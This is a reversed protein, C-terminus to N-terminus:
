RRLDKIARAVRVVAEVGRKANDIRDRAQDDTMGPGTIALGVPKEFEIALEMGAKAIAHAILEDHSTDGKIIAGIMVVGAIERRKLMAKVVPGMDYVGPVKVERTVEAGLSKAHRRALEAMPETVESNFEAVVLGIKM